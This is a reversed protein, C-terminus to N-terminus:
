SGSLTASVTTNLGATTLASNVDAVLDALTANSSTSTATVTVEHADGTAGIRVIFSADHTLVAGPLVNAATVSGGAASVGFQAQTFGLSPPANPNQLTTQVAATLAISGNNVSAGLFGVDIAANLPNVSATVSASISDPKLFFDQNTPAEGSTLVGFDLTVKLAAT